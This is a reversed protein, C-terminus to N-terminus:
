NRAVWKNKLIMEESTTSKIQDSGLQELDWKRFIYKLILKDIVM